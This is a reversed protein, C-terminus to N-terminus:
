GEDGEDIIEAEVVEDDDDGDAGSSAGQAAQQQYLRQALAQSAQLVADMKPRLTEPPADKKETETRLDALASEIAAKEEDNLQDAQETLLKGTQHVVQEAQNRTEAAERRIRDEEAHAEAEKIMSDIDDAALATGGTITMAQEKGTALDKASVNVIGNADIDFAVEIQPIGRPAPPIGMLNFRGLSKV